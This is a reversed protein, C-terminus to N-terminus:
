EQIRNSRYPKRNVSELYAAPAWGEVNVGIEFLLILYPPVLTKITYLKGLIKVFWWGACGVKLLEVVDGERLSVESHGMACYDALSVFRSGQVVRYLVVGWFVCNAFPAFVIAFYFYVIFFYEFHVPRFPSIHNIHATHSFLINDM